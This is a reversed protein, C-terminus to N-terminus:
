IEMEEDFEDLPILRLFELGVGRDIIRAVRCARRGLTALTGVTLDAVGSVAAGSMSIDIVHVPHLRGEGLILTSRPNRPAIRHHLRAEPVGLTSRNAHWTLQDALKERKLPPTTLAIAFGGDFQRAVKGELRGFHDLYCVVRVGVDGKVAAILAMGGPSMDLTQCAYEEGGPLMYRGLAPVRVRNHRRHDFRQWDRAPRLLSVRTRVDYFRLLGPTGREDKLRHQLSREFKRETGRPASEPESSNKRM